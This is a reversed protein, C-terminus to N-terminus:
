RQEEDLMIKRVDGWTIYEVSLTKDEPEFMIGISDTFHIIGPYKAGSGTEIRVNVHLLSDRNTMM